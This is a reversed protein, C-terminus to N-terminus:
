VLWFNWRRRSKLSFIASKPGVDAYLVSLPLSEIVLICLQRQISVIYVKNMSTLTKVPDHPLVVKM